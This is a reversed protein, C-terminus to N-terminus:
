GNYVRPALHTSLTHAKPIQDDVSARDTCSGSCCAKFCETECSMFIKLPIDRWADARWNRFTGYKVGVLTATDKLSVRDGPLIAIGKEGCERRIDTLDVDVERGGAGGCCSCTVWTV